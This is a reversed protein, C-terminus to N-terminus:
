TEGGLVKQGSPAPSGGAPEITIGFGDFGALPLASEIYLNAYGHEDVSFIGGNTREGAKILWLQYQQDPGLPQLGDVVLAGHQGDRSVVISGAAQPAYDTGALAIVPLSSQKLQNVQRWLLLNSAALLLIVALGALAWGPRIPQLLASLRGWRAGPKELKGAAPQAAAQQMLRAKVGAPPDSQVLALPLQDALDQYCALEQQCQKCGALHEAVQQKGAEDLCGLVYAPIQDEVHAGALM